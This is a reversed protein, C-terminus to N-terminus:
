KSSKKRSKGSLAFETTHPIILMAIQVNQRMKVNKIRMVTPSKTYVSKHKSHSIWGKNGKSNGTWKNDFYTFIEPILWGDERRKMREVKTIGQSKLEEQTDEENMGALEKCWIVCGSYNLTRHPTVKVPLDNLKDMKYLLKESYIKKDFHVLLQRGNNMPKVSKHIAKHLAFFIHDKHWLNKITM